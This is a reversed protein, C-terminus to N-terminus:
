KVVTCCYAFATMSYRYSATSLEIYSRNLLIEMRAMKLVQDELFFAFSSKKLYLDVVSM